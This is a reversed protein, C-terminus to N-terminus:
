FVVEDLIAEAESEGEVGEPVGITSINSRGMTDEIDRIHKENDEM